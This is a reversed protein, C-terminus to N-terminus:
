REFHCLRLIVSGHHAQWSETKRPTILLSHHIIFSYLLYYPYLLRRAQLRLLLRTPPTALALNNRGKLFDRSLRSSGRLTPDFRLAAWWKYIWM